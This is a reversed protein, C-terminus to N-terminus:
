AFRLSLRGLPGYDAAVQQGAEVEVFPTVVGTTVLQGAELRLGHGALMDALWALAGLPGGGEVAAGTGRGFPAGDVELVVEHDLLDGLGELPYAPGLLFAGHAANDATLSLGGVRTWAAGFASSVIEIAPHVSEVAAAVEHPEAGPALDRGLRLAFEPEILRFVFDDAPLELTQEADVQHSTEAFLVGPFPAAVQLFAQARRSTAGLKWGIPTRGGAAVYARQAAWAAAADRPRCAEPLADLAQRTRRAQLLLRAAQEAATETM